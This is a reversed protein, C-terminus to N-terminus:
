SKATTNLRRPFIRITWYSRTNNLTAHPSSSLIIPTIVFRPTGLYQATINIHASHRVGLLSRDKLEGATGM